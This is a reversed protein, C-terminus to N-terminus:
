LFPAKRRQRDSRNRRNEFYENGAASVRWGPRLARIRGDAARNSPRGSQPYSAGVTRPLLLGSRAIKAKLDNSLSPPPTFGGSKKAPKKAPKSAAKKAKMVSKMAPSTSLAKLQKPTLLISLDRAAM